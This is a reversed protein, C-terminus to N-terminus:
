TQPGILYRELLLAGLFDMDAYNDLLHNMKQGAVVAVM